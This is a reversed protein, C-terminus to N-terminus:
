ERSQVPRVAQAQSPPGAGERRAVEALRRVSTQMNQHLDARLDRVGFLLRLTLHLGASVPRLVDYSLTV